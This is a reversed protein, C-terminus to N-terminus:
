LCGSQVGYYEVMGEEETLKVKYWEIQNKLFEKRIKNKESGRTKINYFQSMSTQIVSNLYMVNKLSQTYLETTLDMLILKDKVLDPTDVSEKIRKKGRNRFWNFM